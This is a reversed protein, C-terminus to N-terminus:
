AFRYYRLSWVLKLPVNYKNSVANCTVPLNVLRTRARRLPFYVLNSEVLKSIKWLQKLLRFRATLMLSISWKCLKATKFTLYINEHLWKRAKIAKIFFIYYMFPFRWLFSCKWKFRVFLLIENCIEMRISLIQSGAANNSLLEFLANNAFSIETFVCDEPFDQQAKEIEGIYITRYFTSYHFYISHLWSFECNFNM